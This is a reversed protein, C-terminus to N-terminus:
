GMQQIKEFMGLVEPMNSRFTGKKGPKGGFYQMDLKFEKIPGLDAVPKKYDDVRIVSMPGDYGGGYGEKYSKVFDKVEPHDDMVELMQDIFAEGGEVIVKGKPFRVCDKM